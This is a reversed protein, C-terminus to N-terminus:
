TRIDRLMPVLKYKRHHIALLHDLYVEWEQQRRHQQYIDRVTGLLSVATDYAGSQGADMIAEAQRKCKRIGWDPYTERTAEIVRRLDYDTVFGDEDLAQMAEALMNEHLYIDIKDTASWGQRLKQLLEPKITQWEDGAIQKVATYDALKHSSTFAVQAAILELVQNGAEAAKERTWRALDDKGHSQELSLGHEAVNLAAEMEGQAAMVQALSLIEQPYVLYTKAEAMAKEIDGSQAMMNIALEVQGEAEALHIYEQTRGQRALIRLRVQALEDAYYPAEGEWAGKESINGQMAAVLPPYSWGQEVATKAIALDGLAEEWDAIQALWEEQQDPQMDLSLLVEALATGLTLNAEEFLDMNYEYVWEDLDTLGDIFSEIITAILTVATTVDSGDLLATLIELHPRLIEDPDVELAAYEDYYGHQLPDGKGALLFDKHMERRIAALSAPVPTSSTGTPATPQDRLWDVEQEIVEAFEPGREAVGSLVQRLHDATLDALMTTLVPKEVITESQHIVVLLTAVIHKCIGGWDYPCTCSMEVIGADGVTVTVRYPEYESGEVKATILDGRRIVDFVFEDRYYRYGRDISQESAM